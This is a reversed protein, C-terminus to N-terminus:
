FYDELVEVVGPLREAVFFDSGDSFSEFLLYLDCSSRSSSSSPPSSKKLAGYYRAAGSTRGM